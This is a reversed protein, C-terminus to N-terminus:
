SAGGIRGRRGAGLRRLAGIGIVAGLVSGALVDSPYHVGLVLRSLLMPPVLLPALRRGILGGYLVAATTTSTAHASPFSLRSPTPTYVQLDPHEPRPRRVLQKIAISACHAALVTASATMWDRRRRTDAMAGIGGLALWGASNAGFISLARALGVVAPTAIARQLAALAAVEDEAATQIQTM